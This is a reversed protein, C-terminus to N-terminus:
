GMHPRMFSLADPEPLDGHFEGLYGRLHQVTKKM